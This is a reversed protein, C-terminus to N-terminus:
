KKPKARITKDSKYSIQNNLHKIDYDFCFCIKITTM